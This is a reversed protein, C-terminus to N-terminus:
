GIAWVAPYRILSSAAFQKELTAGVVSAGSRHAFRPMSALCGPHSHAGHSLTFGISTMKATPRLGDSSPACVGLRLLSAARPPVCGSAVTTGATVQVTWVVRSVPSIGDPWPATALPQYKRSRASTASHRCDFRSTEPSIIQSAPLFRSGANLQAWINQHYLM